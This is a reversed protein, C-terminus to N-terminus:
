LLPWFDRRVDLTVGVGHRPAWGLEVLLLRHFAAVSLGLVPQLGASGVWRLGALPRDVWGVAAYPAVELQRGSSAYRGLAVAPARVPVSWSLRALGVARGGYARFPV